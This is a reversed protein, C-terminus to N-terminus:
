NPTARPGSDQLARRLIKGAPNHPISTVFEIQRPVKYDPLNSRCHVMLEELTAGGGERLVVYAWVVNGRLRDPKGTVAVDGVAPHSLLVAEVESPYVNYASTLILDDKRDVVYVFGDADQRALDGTHLWGDRLVRATLEPQNLYGLMVSGGAVALEGVEGVAVDKGTQASEAYEVLRVRLGPLSRGISGAPAGEPFPACHTAGAAESLGYAEFIRRGTLAQYRDQIWTPLPAGGSSAVVVSEFLGASARPHSLLAAWLTPVAPISMPRHAEILALVPMLDLADFRPLLLMRYGKAVSVHLGITLGFVHFFPIICLVAANPQEDQQMWSCVQRLSCLVNRHSLMVGKPVGTSGSTYQLVALDDEGGSVSPAVTSSGPRLLSEFRLPAPVEPPRPLREELGQLSTVLLLKVSSSPLVKYLGPLFVDLTVLAVAGCDALITALERGQSAPSLNVVVAARRMVAYFAIVYTPTNPLMLAVRDGTGIGREALATALWEVRAQLESYSLQTQALVLATAHPTAQASRVLLEDLRKSQEASGSPLASGGREHPGMEQAAATAANVGEFSRVQTM